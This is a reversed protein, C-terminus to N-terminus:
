WSAGEIWAVCGPAISWCIRSICRLAILDAQFTSVTPVAIVNPDPSTGPTSIQSAPDAFNVLAQKSIDIMPDAGDGAVILGATAIAVISDDPLANSAIVAYDFHVGASLKILLARAASAIFVVSSADIGSKAIEGVLAALDKAMDASGPISAVGFLLGPPAVDSGADDSLLVADMGRGVADELARGISAEALGGSANELEGSLASLLALKRTPGVPLGVFAGQRVPIAAGEAIFSAAAFNTPLQFSFSSVGVLDVTTALPFLQAATSRPALLLLRTISDGPLDSRKMVTVAARTEREFGREIEEVSTKRLKSLAVITASRTFSKRWEREVARHDPRLPIPRHINM